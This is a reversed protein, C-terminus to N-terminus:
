SQTTNNGGKKDKEINQVLNFDGGLIIYECEFTSPKKFANLFFVPNDENPAYINQLTM